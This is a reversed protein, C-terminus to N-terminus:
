GDEPVVKLDNVMEELMEVSTNAALGAMLYGTAAQLENITCESKMDVTIDKTEEDTAIDIKIFSM